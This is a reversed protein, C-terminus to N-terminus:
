GEEVRGRHNIRSEVEKIRQEVAELERAQAELERAREDFMLEYFLLVRHHERIQYLLLGVIALLSVALLSWLLPGWLSRM